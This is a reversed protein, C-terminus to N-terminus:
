DGLGILCPLENITGPRLSDTSVFGEYDSPADYSYHNTRNVGGLVCYEGSSCHFDFTVRRNDSGMYDIYEHDGARNTSDSLPHGCLAVLKEASLYPLRSAAVRLRSSYTEAQHVSDEQAANFMWVEYLKYTIFGAILALFVGSATKLVQNM